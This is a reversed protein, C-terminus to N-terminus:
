ASDSVEDAEDREHTETIWWPADEGGSVDYYFTAHFLGFDDRREDAPFLRFRFDSQTLTHLRTWLEPQGGTGGALFVHMVYQRGTSYGIARFSPSEFQSLVTSAEPASLRCAHAVIPHTDQGTTEVILRNPLLVVRKSEGRARAAMRVLDGLAVHLSDAALRHPNSLTCASGPMGTQRLLLSVGLALQSPTRDRRELPPTVDAKRRDEILGFRHRRAFARLWALNYPQLTGMEPPLFLMPRKNRLNCSLTTHLRPGVEDRTRAMIAALQATWSRSAASM